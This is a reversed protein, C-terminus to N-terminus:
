KNRNKRRSVAAIKRKAKQGPSRPHGPLAKELRIAALTRNIRSISTAAAAIVTSAIDM